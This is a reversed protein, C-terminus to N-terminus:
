DKLFEGRLLIVNKGYNRHYEFENMLCSLIYVGQCCTSKVATTEQCPVVVHFPNFPPGTHEIKVELHTNIVSVRVILAQDEEYECSLLMHGALDTIALSLAEMYGVALQNSEGFVTIINALGQLQELDDNIYVAVQRNM